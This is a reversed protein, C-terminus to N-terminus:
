YILNHRVSFSYSVDDAAWVGPKGFSELLDAGCLLKVQVKQTNYLLNNFNNPLWSVIQESINDNIKNNVVADIQSQHHKLVMLTRSHGNQSCEWDSLKIWDTDQLALNVMALRHSAAALDKKGYGDHVPYILGFLVDNGM